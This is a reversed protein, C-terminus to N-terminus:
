IIGQCPHSDFHLNIGTKLIDAIKKAAEDPLYSAMKEDMATTYNIQTPLHDISHHQLTYQVREKHTLSM